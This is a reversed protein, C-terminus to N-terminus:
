QKWETSFNHFGTTSPSQILIGRVNGFKRTKNKGALWLLQIGGFALCGLTSVREEGKSARERTEFISEWKKLQDLIGLSLRCENWQFECVCHVGSGKSETISSQKSVILQCHLGREFIRPMYSKMMLRSQGDVTLTSSSEFASIKVGGIGTSRHMERLNVKM